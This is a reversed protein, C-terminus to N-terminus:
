GGPPELAYLGGTFKSLFFLLPEGGHGGDLGELSFDRLNGDFRRVLRSAGGALAIRWIGENELFRAYLLQEGDGDWLPWAGDVTLRRPEGGEVPCVWVGGSDLDDPRVSGSWALLRGDPSWRPAHIVSRRALVRQEGREVDHVILEAGTPSRRVAAIAAGDPSPRPVDWSVRGKMVPEPLGGAEPLRWIWQSVGDPAPAAVLLDGGTPMWAVATAAMGSRTRRELSGVDIVIVAPSQAEAGRAVAIRSGDPSLSAARAGPEVAVRRAEAGAAAALYLYWQRFDFDFVLRRGDPAV